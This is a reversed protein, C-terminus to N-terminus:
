TCCHLGKLYNGEPFSLAVPHDPAQHLWRAIKVQKGADLAADAVIKQFLGADVAGSCSFTFLHGGPKLLRFALLNLDKYGRAAKRVAQQSAAFKPPDLVVVDFLNDHDRFRRMETFVDAQIYETRSDDLGNLAANKRALELAEGSSDINVVGAAGNKLAWLGFAGSYAFCNLVQKGRCFQSFLYRNRRQDLYFGTKHGRLPDVLFRLPGEQIELLEPPPDGWLVGTTLKLKEKRRVSVDS